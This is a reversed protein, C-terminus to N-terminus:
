DGTSQGVNKVKYLLDAERKLQEAVEPDMCKLCGAPVISHIWDNHIYFYYYPWLGWKKCNTCRCGTLARLDIYYPARDTLSPDYNIYKM